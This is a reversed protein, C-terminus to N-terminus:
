LDLEKEIRHTLGSGAMFGRRSAWAVRSSTMQASVLAEVAEALAITAHLQGEAIFPLLTPEAASISRAAASVKKAEGIHDVDTVGEISM